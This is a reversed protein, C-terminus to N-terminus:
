DTGAAVAPSTAPKRLLRRGLLAPGFRAAILFLAISLNNMLWDDFAASRGPVIAQHLEEATAILATAVGALIFRNGLAKAVLLALLGYVSLHGILHITEDDIGLFSFEKSLISAGFYLFAFVGAALLGTAWRWLSLHATNQPLHSM